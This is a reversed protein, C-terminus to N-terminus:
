SSSYSGLFGILPNPPGGGGNPPGGPLSPGNGGGGRLYKKKNYKITSTTVLGINSLEGGVQEIYCAQLMVDLWDHMMSQRM